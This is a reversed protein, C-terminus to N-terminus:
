VSSKAGTLVYVNAAGKEIMLISCYFATAGTTIVDDVLLINKNIIENGNVAKFAESLNKWREEGNLGIQDKTDKFKKLLEVVKSNTKYAIKKALYQSQNYGRKKLTSKSCPVYTVIDFNIKYTKITNLMYETIVDGARFDSKYKLRAILEKGLGSYYFSSYCRISYNQRTIQFFKNCIRIESSCKTCLLSENNVYAGCVICEEPNYIVDLM